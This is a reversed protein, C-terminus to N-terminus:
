HAVSGDRHFAGTITHRQCPVGELAVEDIDIGLGPREPVLRYGDVLEPEGRIADAVPGAVPNNEMVVFNPIAAALQVFAANNVPGGMLHPFIGVFHAEAYAAIKKAQTFGGALSLDPRILSVTKRDILDAFQQLTHYREGSAMPLRVHRAVYELADISEPPLADEYYLVRYPELERALTIAEEPRLNRHIELGLDAEDGVAEHVAAVMAVADAIVRAPTHAEFGPNFPTLRLSTYGEDVLARAAAAREPPTAGGLNAFVRVRDRCRGGLLQHVPLGAAQGLIDWLAVDVASVAASLFPGSFHTDRTVVQAHHEIHRPDKGRYYAALERVAAAVTPHHAWLGAEGTGTLGEDTYVRVLLYRDVLFPKVDAIRM